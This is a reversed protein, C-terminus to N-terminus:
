KTSVHDLTQAVYVLVRTTTVVDSESHFTDGIEESIQTLLIVKKVNKFITLSTSKDGYNGLGNGGGGWFFINLM